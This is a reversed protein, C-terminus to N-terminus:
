AQGPEILMASIGLEKMLRQAKDRRQARESESIPAPADSVRSRLSAVAPAIDRRQEADAETPSFGLLAAGGVLTSRRVFERREM